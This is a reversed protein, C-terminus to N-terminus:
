AWDDRNWEGSFMPIIQTLNGSQHVGIDNMSKLHVVGEAIKLQAKSYQRERELMDAAGFALLANDINRLIPTDQDHELERIRRKGLILLNTEAEPAVHLWIKTHKREREKPWLTQLEITNPAATTDTVKVNGATLPKSLVLVEDWIQSTTVPTTGNLMITEFQEFGASEGRIMVELGVDAASSSSLVLATGQPDTHLASVNTESWRTPTGTKDFIAPDVDFLAQLEVPLANDNGIRVSVPRELYHPLVVDAEAVQMNIIMLSEKWLASDYIMQYRNRVFGKCLSMSNADTKGLKSCINEAYQLLTLPM